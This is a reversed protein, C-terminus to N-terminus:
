TDTTKKEELYYLPRTKIHAHDLYQKYLNLYKFSWM